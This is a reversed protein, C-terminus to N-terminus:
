HTVDIDLVVVTISVEQNVAWNMTVRRGIWVDRVLGGLTQLELGPGPYLTEEIANLITFLQNEPNVAPDESDRTYIFLNASFTTIRPIGYQQRRTDESFSRLIVAPIPQNDATLLRRGYYINLGLDGMSQLIDFIADYIPQRNLPENM